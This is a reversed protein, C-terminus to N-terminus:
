LQIFVFFCFAFPLVLGHFCYFAREGEHQRQRDDQRQADACKCGAAGIVVVAFDGNVVCDHTLGIRDILNQLQFAIICVGVGVGVFCSIIPCGEDVAIVDLTVINTDVLLAIDRPDVASVGGHECLERLVVRSLVGNSVLALLFCGGCGNFKRTQVETIIQNVGRETREAREVRRVRSDGDLFLVHHGGVDLGNM